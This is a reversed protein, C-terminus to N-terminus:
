VRRATGFKSMLEKVQEAAEDFDYQGIPKKLGELMPNAPTGQVQVFINEFVEEAESDYQELKDLLGQLQEGLDDPIEGNGAVPVSGESKSVSRITDLIRNLEDETQSMLRSPLKRPDKRLATELKAATVQLAEAGISGAVGKLTHALRVAGEGNRESFATKIEEIADATNEAFKDLLKRYFKMNGGVRSVGVETNIGPLDPLVDDSEATEHEDSASLASLDREKHEIWHLLASFLARPNIPKAIHDNMGAKLAKERDEVTANATMALVPLDRFREQERIRRTATFGDMVPMQVDMLVCDYAKHELMELAQQGHNAIDVSFGAQELLEQAVQQNIENDEVVLIEAGQVPRLEETDSQRSTRQSRSSRGSDVGFLTMVADYLNSSSVPKSLFQDICEGGPKNSVDGSSFGSVMIIQPEDKSKVNTKIKQAVELGTIGPMLWDLVVLDYPKEATEILEIAEEGNAAEDVEFSFARLYTSLVERATENDDVALAHIGKLDPVTDFSKEVGGKGMDFVVSFRFTSGIGPESEVGIEGGMIEVLQKSIALGLGTGGYKRTTSIDAQSFSKFLKTQQDETMGIGTDRVSIQLTAQEENRDLLEVVVVIEGNETFKVANNTLNILIQGLRLPDGVLVTPVRPDRKFVLELGKEQTKVNAVTALNELVQDIDFDIAEIDLKGAEIKSFDLIDNIIGLLSIASSHVKSLYDQQKDTLETRLCLDSLGIIANMPTRIEHSMNALFDGKAKNATDAQQMAQELQKTRQAVTEELEASHRELDRNKQEIEATLEERSLNQIRGRQEAVFADTAEFAPNPLWKLARLGQFGDRVNTRSLGDFFGALGSVEPTEGRCEFDLVLQPPSLEMALAVAICPELNNRRLERVAESVASALRTTEIPDYGLANALGRIKNRADYVSTQHQLRIQGLAIM